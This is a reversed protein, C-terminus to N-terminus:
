NCKVYRTYEDKEWNSFDTETLSNVCITTLNTGLLRCFTLLKNQSLDLSSLKWNGHGYIELRELKRSLSLNLAPSHIEGVYLERLEPNGSLNLTSLGISGIILKELVPCQLVDANYASQLEVLKPHSGTKLIVHEGTYVEELASCNSIDLNTMNDNGTLLLSTFSTLNAVDLIEVKSGSLMLYKLSNVKGFYLVKLSSCGMCHAYPVYEFHELKKNNRFDMTDVSLVVSGFFRLNTFGEIGKLTNSQSLPQNLQLSDVNKIYKYLVFGDASKVPDIGKAILYQELNTSLAVKSTDTFVIEEVVEQLVPDIKSDSKKCSFIVFLVGALYLYITKM